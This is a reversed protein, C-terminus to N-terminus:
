PSETAPRSEPVANKRSWVILGIGFLIVPLSLVQGLTLWDFALYGIHADPVRVFEVLFRFSGYLTLFLGSVLGTRRPHRSVIWLVVFLVLGELFAQYLQSPHRPVYDAAPFIMAWPLDTPKGWLEGNIWNGIRGAGLGIPVLPAIFDTLRFFGVGLRRAYLWATVLVGVLGGHFAMGGEWVRFLSVPDALTADLNYFLAYGLRGGIIVGIAGWFLLDGVQVPQLPAWGQTRARWAGLAWFAVFGILYMLGYWYLTLPGLSLAVPDIFPHTPMTAQPHFIPQM